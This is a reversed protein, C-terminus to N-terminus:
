ARPKKKKVDRVTASTIFGHEDREFIVERNGVRIEPKVNVIPTPAAEVNVTPPAGPPISIDPAPMNILPVTVNVPQSPLAGASGAPLPGPSAPSSSARGQGRLGQEQGRLGQLELQRQQDAEAAVQEQGQAQEAQAQELEVQSQMQQAAAKTANEDAIQKHLQIHEEILQWTALEGSQEADIQATRHIPVHVEPPDYYAPEIQEGMFLKHNELEAKEAQDDGFSEPLDEAQGHELSETYWRLWGEPNQQVLGAVQAAAWIDSVKQLEAGQSRPKAAGKPIHVIFFPPIKTADFVEADVRNEEGAILVQKAHGWYNRMDSVVNEVVDAIARKRERMTPQRKTTDSEKLLALYAYNPVNSPADGLSQPRIGAAHQADERSQEVEAQMWAGPAIGSVPQPAGQGPVYTVIELPASTRKRKFETGEPVLVYPLGGKIIARQDTRTRNHARQADKLSDVLGRSWFRGTVRQYHLYTIGSRYSLDPGQYPLKDDLRLFKLGNGAFHFVRGKPHQASPREYFLILWVFGKLGQQSQTPSVTGLSSSIDEDARLEEATAGYEEKVKSLLTPAIVAEWPFHREHTVGAPVLLQFASLPELCIRGQQVDGMTIGPNPLPAEGETPALMGIAQSRPIPKGGLFPVNEEAAPGQTPDWRCRIASVGLDICLRDAEALAADADFEFDWGYALAHNLQEQYKEAWEDEQQLLLEPRDDDSGLEGLLTQRYENIFDATYLDEARPYRKPDLETLSRVIRRGKDYGTWQEGAAFSMSLQWGPEFRKRAERAQNIKQRIPRLIEIPDRLQGDEVLAIDAM